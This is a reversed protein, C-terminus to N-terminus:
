ITLFRCLSEYESKKLNSLYVLLRLESPIVHYDIYNPQKLNRKKIQQVFEQYLINTDLELFMKKCAQYYLFDSVVPLSDYYKKLISAYEYKRLINFWTDKSFQSMDSIALKKVSLTMKKTLITIGVPTNHLLKAVADYHHESVVVNVMDFAKYYNVLQGELRDLSDLETKIEYVIAKGNIMVFDAISQAVPLEIIASTTNLSHKGIVLKNFLTNKYVYENRYFLCLYKYIEKIRDLNNERPCDIIMNNGSIIENLVSKTFFKSYQIHTDIM